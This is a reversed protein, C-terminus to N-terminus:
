MIKRGANHIVDKFDILSDKVIKSFTVEEFISDWNELIHYLSWIKCLESFM